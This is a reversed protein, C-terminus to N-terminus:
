NTPEVVPAQKIYVRLKGDTMRNTLTKGDPSVSWTDTQAYEQTGSVDLLARTQVVLESKNEMKAAVFARSITRTYYSPYYMGDLTFIDRNLIDGGAIFDIQLTNGYSTILVNSARLDRRDATSHIPDLKWNGTFSPPAVTSSEAAFSPLAICILLLVVSLARL